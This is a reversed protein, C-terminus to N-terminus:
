APYERIRRALALNDEANAEEFDDELLYVVLVLDGLLVGWVYAVEPDPMGKAALILTEAYDSNRRLLRRVEEMSDLVKM